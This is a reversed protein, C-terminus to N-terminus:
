PKEGRARDGTKTSADMHRVDGRGLTKGTGKPEDSDKAKVTVKGEVEDDKPEPASRRLTSLKTRFRSLLERLDIKEEPTGYALYRLDVDEDDDLGLHWLEDFDELLDPLALIEGLRTLPEANTAPGSYPSHERLNEIRSSKLLESLAAADHGPALLASLAGPKGRTRELEDQSADDEDVDKSWDPCSHYEDALDGGAEHYVYFFAAEDYRGVTLVPVKLQLAILGALERALSGDEPYLSTWRGRPPLLLMRVADAPTEDPGDGVWSLGEANMATRIADLVGVRDRTRIHM